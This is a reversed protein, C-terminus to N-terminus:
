SKERAAFLRSNGMKNVWKKYTTINAIRYSFVRKAPLPSTELTKVWPLPLRM